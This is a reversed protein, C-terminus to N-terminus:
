LDEWLLTDDSLLQALLKNYPAYFDRLMKETQPLMAFRDRYKESKIWDNSNWTKKLSEVEKRSQSTLNLFAWVKRLASYPDVALDESRLFLFREHSVTALWCIVYFYYMGLGLRLHFCDTTTTTRHVCELISVGTAVCSQFQQIAETTLNHFIQKGNETYHQPVVVQGNRKWNQHSCFFWYDSFLRKVPNRMVVIFKATPTVNAIVSSIMCLDPNRKYGRPVTWLTSPSGDITISQPSESIQNAARMFHHLYWLAHLQKDTYTGNQLFTSWFHGEKRLPQAVLPHQVLLHYLATTGCKPFGALYVYPLCLLRKQHQQNNVTSLTRKVVQESRITSDFVPWRVAKITNFHRSLSPPIHLSSYWCPNRHEHSFKHPLLTKLADINRRLAKCTSTCESSGNYASCAEKVHVYNPYQEIYETLCCM